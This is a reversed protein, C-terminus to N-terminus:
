LAVNVNCSGSTGTITHKLTCVACANWPGRSTTMVVRENASIVGMRRNSTTLKYTQLGETYFIASKKRFCEILVLLFYSSLMQAVVLCKDCEVMKPGKKRFHRLLNAVLKYRKMSIVPFLKLKSFSHGRTHIRKKIVIKAYITEFIM